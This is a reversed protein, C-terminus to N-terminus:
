LTNLNRAYFMALYTITDLGLSYRFNVVECSSSFCFTLNYIPSIKTYYQHSFEIQYNMQNGGLLRNGPLHNSM